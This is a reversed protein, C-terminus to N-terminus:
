LDLVEAFFDSLWGWVTPVMLCSPTNYKCDFVVITTNSELYLVGLEKSNYLVCCPHCVDSHLCWYSM